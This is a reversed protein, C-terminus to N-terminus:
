SVLEGWEDMSHMVQGLAQGKKTLYYEIHLPLGPFVKRTLIGANELEHLRFTLTKTSIGTMARQLQGFRNRGQAIHHLLQLTWKAGIIKVTKLAACHDHELHCDM